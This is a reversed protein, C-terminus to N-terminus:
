AGHQTFWSLGHDQVLRVMDEACRDYTSWTAANFRTHYAYGRSDRLHDSIMIPLKEGTGVIRFIVRISVSANIPAGYSSGHRFLEIEATVTDTIRAWTSKGKRVFGYGKIRLDFDNRAKDYGKRVIATYSPTDM